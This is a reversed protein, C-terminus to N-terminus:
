PLESLPVSGPSQRSNPGEQGTPMEQHQQPVQAYQVQNFGGPSWPAHGPSPQGGYSVNGPNEVQNYGGYGQSLHQPSVMGPTSTMEPSQTRNPVATSATQWSDHPNPSSPIAPKQPSFGPSYPTQTPSPQYPIPPINESNHPRRPPHSYRLVSALTRNRGCLYFALGALAIV